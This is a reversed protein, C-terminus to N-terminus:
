PTKPLYDAYFEWPYDAGSPRVTVNADVPLPRV